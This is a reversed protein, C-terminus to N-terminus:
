GDVHAPVRPDPERRKPRLEAAVDLRVDGEDAGRRQALTAWLSGWILGCGALALLRVSASFPNVRELGAAVQEAEWVASVPEHLDVTFGAPLGDPWLATAKAPALAWLPLILLAAALPICRVPLRIEPSLAVIEVGVILAVLFDYLGGIRGQTMAIWDTAILMMGIAGAVWARGRARHLCLMAPLFVIILDHVHLFPSVFPLAACALATAEVERARTRYVAYALAGVALAGLASAFLAAEASPLGFGFAIAGPTVQIMSWREALTHGHLAQLYRAIGSVGGGFALNAGACLAFAGALSLLGRRSRVLGLLAFTVTPKLVIGGACLLASWPWSRARLALLAAIMAATAVVAAQGLSFGNALPSFAAALAIVIPADRWALRRGALAFSGLFIVLVGIGLLAGWVKAAVDFPLRALLAWFPLSAPPGLFPLVEIRPGVGPITREVDWIQTSYPDGGAAWTAGAAYYAEFDRMMPGPVSYPRWIFFLAAFFLVLALGLVGAARSFREAIPM